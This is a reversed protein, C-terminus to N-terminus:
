VRFTFTLKCESQFLFKNKLDQEDSVNKSMEFTTNTKINKLGFKWCCNKFLSRGSQQMHHCCQVAQAQETRSPSAPQMNFMVKLCVSVQNSPLGTLWTAVYQAM